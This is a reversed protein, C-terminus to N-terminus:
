PFVDIGRREKKVKRTYKKERHLNGGGTRTM